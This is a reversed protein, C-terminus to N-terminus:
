TVLIYNVQEDRTWFWIVFKVLQDTSTLHISVVIYVQLSIAEEYKVEKHVKACNEM